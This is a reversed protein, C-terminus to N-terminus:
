DLGTRGLYEFSTVTEGNDFSGLNIWLPWAQCHFAMEGRVGEMFGLLSAPRDIATQSQTTASLIEWSWEAESLPTLSLPCCTHCGIRGYRSILLFLLPVLPEFSAPVTKTQPVFLDLIPSFGM